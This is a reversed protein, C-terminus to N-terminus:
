ILESDVKPFLTGYKNINNIDRLLALPSGSQIKQESEKKDKKNFGNNSLYEIIADVKKHQEEAGCNCENEKYEKNACGDPALPCSYWPDECYYHQRKLSEIEKLVDM